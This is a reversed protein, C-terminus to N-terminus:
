AAQTTKSTLPILQTAEHSMKNGSEKKQMHAESNSHKPIRERWWFTKYNQCGNRITTIANQKKLNFDVCTPENLRESKFKLTLNSTFFCFFSVRHEHPDKWRPTIAFEVEHGFCGFYHVPNLPNDLLYCIFTKKYNHQIFKWCFEM